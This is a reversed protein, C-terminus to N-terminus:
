EDGGTYDPMECSTNAFEDILSKSNNNTIDKNSQHSQQEEFAAQETSSDQPKIDEKENQHKESNSSFVPTNEESPYDVMCDKCVVAFCDSCVYAWDGEHQIAPHKKPNSSQEAISQDKTDEFDGSFDCLMPDTNDNEDGEYVFHKKHECYASKKRWEKEADLGENGTSPNTDIKLKPKDKGLLINTHSFSITLNPFINEYYKNNDNVTNNLVLDEHESISITFFIIYFYIIILFLINTM